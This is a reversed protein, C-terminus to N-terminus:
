RKERWYTKGNGAVYSEATDDAEPRGLARRAIRAVIDVESPTMFDFMKRTPEDKAQQERAQAASQRLWAFETASLTGERARKGIAERVAPDDLLDRAFRAMDVAEPTAAETTTGGPLFENEVAVTKTKAKGM